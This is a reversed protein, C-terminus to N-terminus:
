TVVPKEDKNEERRKETAQFDNNYPLKDHGTKTKTKNKMHLPLCENYSNKNLVNMEFMWHSQKNDLCGTGSIKDLIYKKETM